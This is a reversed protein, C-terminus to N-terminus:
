VPPRILPLCGLDTAMTPGQTHFSATTMAPGPSTRHQFLSHCQRPTYPQSQTSTEM